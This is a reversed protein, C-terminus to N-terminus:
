TERGRDRTRRGASRYASVAPDDPLWFRWPRDVATSVGVRPGESVDPASIGSLTLRLPGGPDTMDAGDHAGTVGLCAALRAPGRALDRDPPTRGHNRTRRRQAVPLGDVIEAARLLVAAAVGEPGIVVNLCWHMGYTFYVYAHGPPGFMTANRATPGRYAHSAPDEGVGAYAEVEAIRVAVREGGVDSTVISGLVLPAAEAVRGDLVGVGRSWWWM